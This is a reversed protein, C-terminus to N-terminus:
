KVAVGVVPSKAELAAQQKKQYLNIGVYVIAAITSVCYGVINIPTAEVQLFFSGLVIVIVVVVNGCIATTTASTTQVLCFGTLNFAFALGAGAFIFGSAAGANNGAWEVFESAETFLSLTFLLVSQLPSFYFLLEVPSLDHDRGLLLASMVIGGGGVASSGIAMMVGIPNNGNATSHLCSLITGLILFMLTLIIQWSYKKKEVVISFFVVFVPVTSKIVKNLTLDILVLSWNNLVITGSRLCALLLLPRWKSSFRDWSVTGAKFGFILVSAGTFGALMHTTTYVVPFKFGDIIRLLFSNYLNFGVSLSGYTLVVLVVVLWPPVHMKGSCLSLGDVGPRKKQTEDRPPGKAPFARLLADSEKGAVPTDKPRPPAETPAACMSFRAGM